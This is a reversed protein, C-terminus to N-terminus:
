SRVEQGSGDCEACAGIFGHQCKPEGLSGTHPEEWVPNGLERSLLEEPADRLLQLAKRLRTVLPINRPQARVLAGGSNLAESTWHFVEGEGDSTRTLYFNCSLFVRGNRVQIGWPGAWTSLEPFLLSPLARSGKAEPQQEAWERYARNVCEELYGHSFFKTM